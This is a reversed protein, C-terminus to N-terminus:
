LLRRSEKYLAGKFEFVNNGYPQHGTEVWINM